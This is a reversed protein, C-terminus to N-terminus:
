NLPVGLFVSPSSEGSGAAQGLLAEDLTEVCDFFDTLSSVELIRRVGTASGLQVRFRIGRERARREADVFVELVSSDLFSTGTLDLVVLHNTALLSTLAAELEECKDLDHEGRLILVSSHASLKAVEIEAIHAHSV